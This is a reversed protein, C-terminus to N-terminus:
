ETFIFATLRREYEIKCETRYLRGHPDRVIQYTTYFGSHARVRGEHDRLITFTFFPDLFIM